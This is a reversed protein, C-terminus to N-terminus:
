AMALLEMLLAEMPGGKFVRNEFFLPHVTEVSHEFFTAINNRFAGLMRSTVMTVGPKYVGRTTMCQHQAEIVIAVGLPDLVEQIVNALGM